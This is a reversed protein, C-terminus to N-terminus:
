VYRTWCLNLGSWVDIRAGKNKREMRGYIRNMKYNVSYVEIALESYREVVVKLNDLSIPFSKDLVYSNYEEQIIKAKKFIELLKM